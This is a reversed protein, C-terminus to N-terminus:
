VPTPIRWIANKTAVLGLTRPDVCHEERRHADWLEIHDFTRHCAACHGRDEGAWRAGCRCSIGILHAQRDSM